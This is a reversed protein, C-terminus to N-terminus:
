GSQFTNRSSRLSTSPILPQRFPLETRPRLSFTTCMGVLLQPWFKQRYLEICYTLLPLATLNTRSPGYAYKSKYDGEVLVLSGDQGFCIFNQDRCEETSQRAYLCLTFFEKICGPNATCYMLLLCLDMACRAKGLWNVRPSAM